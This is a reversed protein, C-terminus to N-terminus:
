STPVPLVQGGSRRISDRLTEVLRGDSVRVIQAGGAAQPVNIHYDFTVLYGGPEQQGTLTLVFRPLDDIRGDFGIILSAATEPDPLGECKLRGRSPRTLVDGPKACAEALGDYVDAPYQAFFAREIGVQTAPRSDPPPTDCAALAGMLPLLALLFAKSM